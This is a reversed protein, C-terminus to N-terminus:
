ARSRRVRRHFSPRYCAAPPQRGSDNIGLLDSVTSANGPAAATMMATHAIEPDTSAPVVLLLVRGRGVGLVELTHAPQYSFGDLRVSRGGTALRAPAKPWAALDYMVRDVSGLRVLLVALLDPLETALDDSRPWWAGDVYGSIPAKPKMRLRPTTEPGPRHGGAVARGEHRTM